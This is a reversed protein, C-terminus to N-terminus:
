LHTAHLLWTHPACSYRLPPHVGSVFPKVHEDCGTHLAPSIYTSSRDPRKGPLARHSLQGLPVKRGSSPCLSCLQSGCAASHSLTSLEAYWFFAGVGVDSLTHAVDACHVAICYSDRGSSGPTVPPSRSHVASVVQTGPWYTDFSALLVFSRCHLSQWARSSNEFVCFAALHM